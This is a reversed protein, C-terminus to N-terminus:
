GLPELLAALDSESFKELANADESLIGAALAAKKDQLSLIKEEISGAVVLKYVFVSQTQGIRHARDTAQNEVAPNWWPDYHIVTDATTLNLGVGGAKLSILFIPVAGAQFRNIPEERNKTDGTLMVYGLRATKLEAEILALMSTFQSFVLVRRGEHVLEPLMDMLLDLKAREKVRKASELKLLRPDCCVQRLKLLADLIVIQSRTFGRNAIEDRVRQDMAARVTEYLDRQTGELEVTRIITTKPPLEQAVDEKRRRLIFPKIRAALVERRLSDGQKEIPTRWQRAFSKADGLFGPLLFDFQAWLEGLHNELPTGTLCLRHQAKIKRVIAAAKSAANKVTQAEDLILSHFEYQALEAEDRWLLPYTTLIVDHQGILAFNERREKGHLALVRLDPAFRQAESKWNFILSTPLVVLAPQTLRGAEKELLLHALAQATKGLGMDDALIGALKHERLYQLWALGHLQYDRLAMKFGKPPEVSEVGSGGRLTEALQTISEASRFQWRDRGFVETIRAADLKTARLLRREMMDAPDLYIHDFLDILTRAIPKLRGANARILATVNGTNDDILSLYVEEKDNIQALKHADLWRGDRSFLEALLPPLAMRQGGVIIGLDLDLWGGENETLDAEWHDVEVIQHRFGTLHEVEWGLEQLRPIVDAVFQTWHSEQELAWWPMPVAQGRAANLKNDPIAKLGYRPLALLAKKEAEPQRVIRVTRGQVDNVFVSEDGAAIDFEGYRFCPAAVDLLTPQFTYPYGRYYYLVAKVTGLKLIPQLPAEIVPIQQAGQPSPLEPAAQALTAAVVAIDAEGLPPLDLLRLAKGAEFPLEIQGITKAQLDVYWPPTVPIVDAAPETQLVAISQGGENKCWSLQGSRKDGRELHILEQDAFLLRGTNLMRNLVDAANKGRLAFGSGYYSRDREAWLLRMIAVDEEDIFKYPQKLASEVNLWPKFHHEDLSGLQTPGKFFEVQYQRTRPHQLVYFIAESKKSSPKSYKQAILQSQQLFTATWALVDPNVGDQTDPLQAARLMTAAAHKCYRGVQCTCFTAFRWQDEFDRSFKITVEYPRGQSGQVNASMVDNQIQIESIATLYSEARTLTAKSFVQQLDNLSYYDGAKMSGM